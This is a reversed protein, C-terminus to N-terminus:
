KGAYVVKLSNIKDLRRIIYKGKGLYIPNSLIIKGELLVLKTLQQAPVFKDDLYIKYRGNAILEFEADQEKGFNVEAGLTLFSNPLDITSTYLQQVSRLQEVPLAAIRDPYQIFVHKVEKTRLANALDPLQFKIVETYGGYPLCCIYYPDKYFLSAGTLDFVYEDEAFNNKTDQLYKQSDAFNRSAKIRNM